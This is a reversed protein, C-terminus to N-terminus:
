RRPEYHEGMDGLSQCTDTGGYDAPTKIKTHVLAGTRDIVSGGAERTAAIRM